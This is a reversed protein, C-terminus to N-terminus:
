RYAKLLLTSGATPGSQNQALSTSEMRESRLRWASREDSREGGFASWEGFWSV